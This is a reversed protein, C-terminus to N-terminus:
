LWRQRLIPSRSPPSNLRPSLNQFSRCMQCRLASYAPKQHSHRKSRSLLKRRKRRSSPSRGSSPLQLALPPTPPLSHHRRPCRDSCSPAASAQIQRCSPRRWREPLPSPTSRSQNQWWLGPPRRPQNAPLRLRQQPLVSLRLCHPLRPHRLLRLLCHRCRRRHLRQSPHRRPSFRLRPLQPSHISRRELNRVSRSAQRSICALILPPM